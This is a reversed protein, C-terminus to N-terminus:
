KGLTAITKDIERVTTANREKIDIWLFLLLIISVFVPESRLTIPKEKDMVAGIADSQLRAAIPFVLLPALTLLVDRLEWIAPVAALNSIMLALCAAMWMVNILLITNASQAARKEDDPNLIAM